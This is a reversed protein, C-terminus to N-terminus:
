RFAALLAASLRTFFYIAGRPPVPLRVESCWRSARVDPLVDERNM